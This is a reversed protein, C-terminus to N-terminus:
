PRGRDCAFGEPLLRSAGAPSIREKTHKNSEDQKGESRGRECALSEPLLRSSSKPSTREGNHMNNADQKTGITAPQQTSPIAPAHVGHDVKGAAYLVPLAGRCGGGGGGGRVGGGEDGEELTGIPGSPSSPLPTDEVERARPPRLLFACYPISTTKEFAEPHLCASASSASKSEGWAGM